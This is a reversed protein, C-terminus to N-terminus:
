TELTNFLINVFVDITYKRGTKLMVHSLYSLMNTTTEHAYERIYMYYTYIHVYIFHAILTEHMVFSIHSWLIKNSMGNQKGMRYVSLTYIQKAWIYIYLYMGVYAYVNSFVNPANIYFGFSHITCFLLIILLFTYKSRHHNTKSMTIKIREMEGLHQTENLWKWSGCVRM